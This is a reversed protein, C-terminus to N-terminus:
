DDNKSYILMYGFRFLINKDKDINFEDVSDDDYKYWKSNKHRCIAIYHGGNLGGMHCGVSILKLNCNIKDYGEAYHSLDLDDIPFSIINRSKAHHNQYRKLIIIMYQPIRMLKMQRYADIYNNNKEDFYKTELIEKEFYKSLSDYLTNGHIPLTLSSFMEFNKSILKDKSEIELSNIKNIYQGFFLEAIISYKNNHCKQWNKISEVVLEDLENKISGSYNFEVDYKLGEHLYDLILALAEQSDQQDYGSFNNDYKQILEHFSKPEIHTKSSWMAKILKAYEKALIIEKINKDKAEHYRNNLDPIYSDLLFYDTLQDLHSLCQISTNLYCTNGRNRLGITGKDM